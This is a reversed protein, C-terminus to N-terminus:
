STPKPRPQALMELDKRRFLPVPRGSGCNPCDYTLTGDGDWYIRTGPAHYPQGKADRLLDDQLLM